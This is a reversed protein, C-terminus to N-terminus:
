QLVAVVAGREAGAVLLAVLLLGADVDLGSAGAGIVVISEGLAIIIM